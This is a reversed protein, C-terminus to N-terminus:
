KMNNSTFEFMYARCYLDSKHILYNGLNNILEPDFYGESYDSNVQETHKKMSTLYNADALKKQELLTLNSNSKLLKDIDERILMLTKTEKPCNGSLKRNFTLINKSYAIVSLTMQKIYEQELQFESLSPNKEKFSSKMKLELDKYKERLKLTIKAFEITLEQGEKNIVKETELDYDKCYDIFLRNQATLGLPFLILILFLLKM